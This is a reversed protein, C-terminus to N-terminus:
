RVVESGLAACAVALTVSVPDFVRCRLGRAALRNGLPKEFPSLVTCGLVLATARDNQLAGIAERELAELTRVPDGHLDLVSIGISRHSAWADALGYGRTLAHMDERAEEVVDLIAFRLGLAAVLHLTTKAPGFVPVALREQLADVGPDCMCNVFLADAGEAVAADAALMLGPLCAEEDAKTEIFSPGEAIFRNTIRWGKGRSPSLMVDM